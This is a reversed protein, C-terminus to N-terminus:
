APRRMLPRDFTSDYVELAFFGLAEYFPLVSRDIPSAILDRHAGIAEIIARALGRGREFSEIYELMAFPEGGSLDALSASFRSGDEEMLGIRLREIAPQDLGHAYDSFLAAATPSRYTGTLAISRHSARAIREVNWEKTSRANICAGVSEFDPDSADIVSVLAPPRRHHAKM